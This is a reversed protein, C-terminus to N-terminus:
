EPTADIVEAETVDAEVVDLLKMRQKREVQKPPQNGLAELAQRFSLSFASADASVTANLDLRVDKPVTSAVVRLFGVPDTTAAERLATPGYREWAHYLDRFFARSVDSRNPGHKGSPNGTQGKVWPPHRQGKYQGDV